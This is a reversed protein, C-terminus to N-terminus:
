SSKGKFFVKQLRQSLLCDFNLANKEKNAHRPITSTTMRLSNGIPVVCIIRKRSNALRFQQYGCWHCFVRPLYHAFFLGSLMTIKVAFHVKKPWICFLRRQPYTQLSFARQKKSQFSLIVGEVLNSQLVYLLFIGQLYRGYPGYASAINHGIMEALRHYVLVQFCTNFVAIFQLVDEFISFLKSKDPTFWHIYSM